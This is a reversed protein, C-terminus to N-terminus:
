RRRRLLLTGAMAMMPLAGPEPTAIIASPANVASFQNFGRFTDTFYYPPQVIGSSTNQAATNVTTGNDRDISWMGIYNVWSTTEAFTTLTTADAMTFVEGKNDNQGIMPTLGIGTTPLVSKIENHVATATSIALSSETKSSAGFDMTMADVTRITLGKSAADKLLTLGAPDLGSPDAALTYSIQLGPNTRQLAALASNRLQNGATNNLTNGEIDFDLWTAHYATVVSQYQAELIGLSTTADALETGDAGGFSLIVDGGTARLANIQPMYTAGTATPGNDGWVPKDSSSALIFALTYYPQLTTAKVTTLQSTLNAGSDIELYPSFTKAPFAADVRSSLLGFLGASLVIAGGARRSIMM